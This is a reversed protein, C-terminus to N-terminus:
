DRHDSLGHQPIKLTVRFHDERDVSLLDTRGYMLYLRRKVSRLGFGTGDTQAADEPLPNSLSIVLYPQELRTELEITVLGTSGYLGHKIANELLPQVILAPVQFEGSGSENKVVTKLRHGFRANEIELYRRVQALEEELSVLKEESMQLTNRYFDALRQLMQRAGAPDKGILAMVSNLGNFLFHPQWQMKLKLLEAERRLQQSELLRDERAKIAAYRYFLLAMGSSATFILFALLLRIEAYKRFWDGYGDAYAFLPPFSWFILSRVAFFWLTTLLGGSLLVWLLAGRGPQFFAFVRFLGFILLGLLLWQISATSIILGEPFNMAERLWFFQLAAGM